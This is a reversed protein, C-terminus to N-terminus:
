RKFFSLVHLIPLLMAMLTLPSLPHFTDMLKPINNKNYLSLAYLISGLNHVQLFAACFEVSYHKEVLWANPFYTLMMRKQWKNFKQYKMFGLIVMNYEM